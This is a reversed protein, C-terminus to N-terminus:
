LREDGEYYNVKGIIYNGKPKYVVLSKKNFNKSDLYNKFNKNKMAKDMAENEDKAEVTLYVACDKYGKVANDIRGCVTFVPILTDFLKQTKGTQPDTYLLDPKNEPAPSFQNSLPIKASNTNKMHKEYEEQHENVNTIEDVFLDYLQDIANDGGLIGGDDINGGDYASKLTQLLIKKIKAKM